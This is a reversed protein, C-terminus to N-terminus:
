ADEVVRLLCLSGRGVRSLLQLQVASRCHDCPVILVGRGQACPSSRNCAQLTADRSRAVPSQSDRTPCDPMEEEFGSRDGGAELNVVSIICRCEVMRVGWRCLYKQVLGADVSIWQWDLASAFGVGEWACAELDEGGWRSAVDVGVRLAACSAQPISRRAGFKM